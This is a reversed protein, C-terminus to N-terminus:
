MRIYRNKFFSFMLLRQRPLLLTINVSLLNISLFIVSFNKFPHHHDDHRGADNNFLDICKKETNENLHQSFCEPWNPDKRVETFQSWILCKSQTESKLSHPAGCDM